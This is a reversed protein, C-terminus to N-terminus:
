FVKSANGKPLTKKQLFDPNINRYKGMYEKQGIAVSEVRAGHRDFQDNPRGPPFDPCGEPAHCSVAAATIYNM